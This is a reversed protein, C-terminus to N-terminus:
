EFGSSILSEFREVAGIDTKEGTVRHFSEGRQDYDLTLNNSGNEFALSDVLLEHTPVCIQANPHGAKISCGNDLLDGLGPHNSFLTNTSTGTIESEDDGFLSYSVNLTVTQATVTNTLYNGAPGSNEALITSHLTHEDTLGLTNSAIDLGGPGAPAENRIITSNSVSLQTLRGTALGASRTNSGFLVETLSSTPKVDSNHSITSNVITLDGFTNSIGSGYGMPGMQNYSITSNSITSNSRHLAVGGGVGDDEVVNDMVVSNNMTFSGDVVFIAGGWSNFARTRNNSLVSNEITLAGLVYISGGHTTIRNTQNQSLTSNSIIAVGNVFVGGGWGRFGLTSNGLVMSDTMTLQGNVFLAGGKAMEGTTSNMTLMVNVLELDSNSCIAGGSGRDSECSSIDGSDLASTEGQSLTLNELAVTWQNDTVAFIRSLNMGNVIQSNEPGIIELHETINLQGATLGIEGIDAIFNITDLGTEGSGCADVPLNTNAAEVAERLTCNGDITIPGDGSSNVLITAAWGLQPTVSAILLGIGLLLHSTKM